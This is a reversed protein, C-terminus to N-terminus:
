PTDIVPTPFTWTRPDHGPGTVIRDPQDFANARGTL